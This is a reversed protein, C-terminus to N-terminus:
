YIVNNELLRDIINVAIREIFIENVNYKINYGYNIKLDKDVLREVKFEKDNLKVEINVVNDDSLTMEMTSLIEDKTSKVGGLVFDKIYIMARVNM